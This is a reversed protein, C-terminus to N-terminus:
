RFMRVMDDGPVFGMRMKGCLDGRGGECFEWVGM